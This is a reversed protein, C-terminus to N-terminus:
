LARIEGSEGSMQVASGDEYRRMVRTRDTNRVQEDFITFMDSKSSSANSGMDDGGGLM